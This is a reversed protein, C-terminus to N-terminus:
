QKVIVWIIECDENSDNISWHEEGAPILTAQGASVRHEEGGSVSLISGKLIISYEDGDHTGVGAQPVRAGPPFVVTGFTVKADQDVNGGFLTKMVVDTRNDAKVDSVTVIKM